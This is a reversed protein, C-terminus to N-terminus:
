KIRMLNNFEFEEDNICEYKILKHGELTHTNGALSDGGCREHLEQDWSDSFEGTNLDLWVYRTTM